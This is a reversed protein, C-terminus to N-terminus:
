TEQYALHDRQTLDSGEHRRQRGDHHRRTQVAVAEGDAQEVIRGRRRRPEGPNQFASASCAQISKRCRILLSDAEIGASLRRPAGSTVLQDHRIRQVMKRPVMVPESM